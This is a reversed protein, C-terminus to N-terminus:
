DRPEEKVGFRTRCELYRLHFENNDLRVLQDATLLCDPSQRCAVLADRDAILRRCKWDNWGAILVWSVGTVFATTLAIKVLAGAMNVLESIKVM